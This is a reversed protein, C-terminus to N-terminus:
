MSRAWRYEVEPGDLRRLHVPGHGNNRSRAWPHRVRLERAAHPGGTRLNRGASKTALKLDERILDAILLQVEGEDEKKDYVTM